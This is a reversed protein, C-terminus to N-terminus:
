TLRNALLGHDDSEWAVTADRGRGDMAIAQLIRRGRYGHTVQPLVDWKFLRAPSDEDRNEFNELFRASVQFWASTPILIM